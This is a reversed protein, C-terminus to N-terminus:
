YASLNLHQNNKFSGLTFCSQFPIEWCRNLIKRLMYFILECSKEFGERGKREIKKRQFSSIININRRTSIIKIIFREISIKERKIEENLIWSEWIGTFSVVKIRNIPINWFLKNIFYTFEMKYINPNCQLIKSTKNRM